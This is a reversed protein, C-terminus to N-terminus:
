PTLDWSFWQCAIKRIGLVQHKVGAAEAHPRRGCPVADVVVQRCNM